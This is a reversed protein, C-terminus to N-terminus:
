FLSLIKETVNKGSLSRGNVEGLQSINEQKQFDADNINNLSKGIFQCFTLDIQVGHFVMKIVPM